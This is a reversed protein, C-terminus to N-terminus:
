FLIPRHQSGLVVTVNDVKDIFSWVNFVKIINVLNDKLYYTIIHFLKYMCYIVNVVTCYIWFFLVIINHLKKFVVFNCLSLVVYPCTNLAPSGETM